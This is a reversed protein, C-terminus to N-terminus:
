SGVQKFTVQIPLVSSKLFYDKQTGDPQDWQFAVVSSNGISIDEITFDVMSKPGSAGVNASIPAILTAVLLLTLTVSKLRSMRM